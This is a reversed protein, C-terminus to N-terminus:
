HKKENEKVSGLPTSENNSNNELNEINTEEGM